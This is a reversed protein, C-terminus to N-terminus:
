NLMFYLPLTVASAMVPLVSDSRLPWAWDRSQVALRSFYAAVVRKVPPGLSGGRGSGAPFGEPWRNKKAQARAGQVPRHGTEGEGEKISLAPSLIGEFSPECKSGMFQPSRALLVNSCEGEGM